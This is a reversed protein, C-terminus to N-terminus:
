GYFNERPGVRSFEIKESDFRYAIRFQVGHLKFTRSYVGKLDGRKGDGKKPAGAIEKILQKVITQENPHLKRYARRFKPSQILTRV